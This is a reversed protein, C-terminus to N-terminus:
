AMQKLLKLVEKHTNVRYRARTLGKGVKLSNSAPPLVSFLEEDTVDDGVALIFDYNGGIWRMAANGKSIAPDKIELIKNGQMIELGYKKLIPKLARKIIVTYKQAHYASASRYHWVLSHPKIEVKAGPTLSAYKELAPLLLDKWDSEVGKVVQWDGGREKFGVGHEAVLNVPLNGFWKDLDVPPRGSIVVVENNGSEALAGILKQLSRPPKSKKYDDNFPVLSGDYDLLLLRSKSTEYEQVLKKRRKSNLTFTYPINPTGPLPQQLTDVFTKAWSQVTHTSLYDRMHKLRINLEGKEMNLARNLAAVLTEPQRPNVILADKLEEAAGATQSLILVGRKNSAVFEKATLNMGDKLPAIFAVDAIQFLATVNEFPVPVNIYDVPQWTKTGYKKNIEGSLKDLKDSLEKYEDIDTRSPAAVMVFVVRGRASPFEALYNEYAKLRVLLGKSPDLRDVSAIIKLRRYKRRYNRVIDKVDKSKNAEAFKAYDIGMPFEAVRIAHKGYVVQGEGVKGIDKSQLCKLFDDVYSTTHFGILNAGLMGKLLRNDQSAKALQRPGPFPIHLFFGINAKPFDKRIMEPALLLQYDHIWVQAKDRMYNMATEAFRKNVTQYATWWKDAKDDHLHKVPLSHFLPWLVSNSYGNYYNDVQNRSLFVPVYNQKGLVATIEQKEATSLNDSPIGPWGIWVNKSGKKVFSSLGTALGGLSASFVLKGNEKKVSVPLRNSVIVVQSMNILLLM